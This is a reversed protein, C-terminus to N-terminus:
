RPRMFLPCPRIAVSTSASAAHAGAVVIFGGVDGPGPPAGAGARVSTGAVASTAAAASTAVTSAAADSADVTLCTVTYESRARRVRTALASTPASGRTSANRLSGPQTSSPVTRTADDAPRM